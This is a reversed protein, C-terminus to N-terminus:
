SGGINKKIYGLQETLGFDGCLYNKWTFPQLGLFWAQVKRRSGCHFLRNVTGPRRNKAAIAEHRSPRTHVHRHTAPAAHAFAERIVLPM